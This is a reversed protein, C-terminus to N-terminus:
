SSFKVQRKPSLEPPLRTFDGPLSINSVSLGGRNMVSLNSTQITVPKLEQVLKAVSPASSSRKMVASTCVSPM